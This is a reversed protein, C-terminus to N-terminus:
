LLGGILLVLGLGFCVFMAIKTNRVGSSTNAALMEEDKLSIIYQHDAQVPKGIIVEGTLDSVAGVVLVTQGVPLVSEVHRYGLTDRSREARFEDLIEVTEIAAGEPNVLVRGTDDKLWFKTFQRNRSIQESARKVEGAEDKEEYERTVTSVFYVCPEQKQDSILPQDTMVQGWLKVYDRWSGGGIEAAVAGATDALEAATVSRSRQISFLKRKQGRHVFFMVASAILLLIGIIKM